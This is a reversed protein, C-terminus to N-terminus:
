CHSGHGETHVCPCKSLSWLDPFIIWVHVASLSFARQAFLLIPCHLVRIPCSSFSSTRYITNTVLILGSNGWRSAWLEATWTPSYSSPVHVHLNRLDCAERKLKSQTVHLQDCHSTFLCLELWSLHIGDWFVFLLVCIPVFQEKFTRHSLHPSM